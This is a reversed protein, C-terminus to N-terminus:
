SWSDPRPAHSASVQDPIIMNSKSMVPKLLYPQKDHSSTLFLFPFEDRRYYRPIYRTRLCIIHENFFYATAAVMLEGHVQRTRDNSILIKNESCYDLECCPM